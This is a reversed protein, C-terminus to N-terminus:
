GGVLVTIKGGLVTSVSVASAAVGYLFLPQGIPVTLAQGSVKVVLDATTAAVVVVVAATALGVPFPLAVNSSAAALQVDQALAGTPCAVFTGVPQLPNPNASIGSDKISLAAQVGISIM